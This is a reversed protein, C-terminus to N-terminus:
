QVFGERDLPWFIWAVKGVFHGGEIAGFYRSDLSNMINDGVVYFENPGLQIENPQTKLEAGPINALENTKFMNKLVPPEVLKEGNIYISPPRISIREGPLGVLRKVYVEDSPIRFQERKTESIADTRFVVVDGRQLARFHYNWENVIIEDGKLPRGDPAKRDGMLTPTMGASPISFSRAVFKWVFFSPFLCWVAALIGTAVWIGVNKRPITKRCSDAIIAIWLLFRILRGIALPILSPIVPSVYLVICAIWIILITVFWM